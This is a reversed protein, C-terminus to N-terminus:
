KIPDHPMSKLKELQNAQIQEFLKIRKPIVASLYAEDKPHNVAMSPITCFSSASSLLFPLSSSSSSSSSTTYRRISRATLRLLM